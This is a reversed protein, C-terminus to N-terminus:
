DWCGPPLPLCIETPKHALRTNLALELVALNNTVCLFETKYCVFLCVFLCVFWLLLLSEANIHLQLETAVDPHICKGALQECM